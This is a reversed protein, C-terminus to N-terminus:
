TIEFIKSRPMAWRKRWTKRQMRVLRSSPPGLHHFNWNISLFPQSIYSVVFFAPFHPFSKRKSKSIDTVIRLGQLVEQVSKPCLIFSLTKINLADSFVSDPYYQRYFNRSELFVLFDAIKKQTSFINESIAMYGFWPPYIDNM